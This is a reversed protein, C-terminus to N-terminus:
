VPTLRYRTSFLFCNDVEKLTGNEDFWDKSLDLLDPNDNKVLNLKWERKWEKMQRERKVADAIDPFFECYLLDCCNYKKSFGDSTRNKHDFMRQRINSSSGIYLVTRRKNSIIYVWGGKRTM